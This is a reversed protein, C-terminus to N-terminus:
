LDLFNIYMYKYISVTLPINITTFTENDSGVSKDLEFHYTKYQRYTVTGNENHRIDIKERYERYTYPGRQELDPKAGEEVQRPNKLHFVWVQLYIPVSPKQWVTYGETGNM